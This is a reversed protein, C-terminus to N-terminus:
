EKRKSPIHLLYVYPDKWCTETVEHLGKQLIWVGKVGM